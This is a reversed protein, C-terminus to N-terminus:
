KQNIYKHTHSTAYKYTFLTRTINPSADCMFPKCQFMTLSVLLEGDNDLITVFAVVDGFMVNSETTTLRDCFMEVPETINDDVITLVVSAVTEGPAFTVMVPDIPAIFDSGATSFLSDM